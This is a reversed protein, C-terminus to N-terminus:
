NKLRKSEPEEAALAAQSEEVVVDWVEQIDKMTTRLQGMAFRICAIESEPTKLVTQTLMVERHSALRAHLDANLKNLDFQDDVGSPHLRFTVLALSPQTVIEFNDSAEIAKGLELAQSIGTRLHAQLGEVGYSRLVFWLKVSRFRRGLSLQWNRYDIVLGSDGEKTRLFAPTVDLAETLDTRDRVFFLATTLPRCLTYIPDASM